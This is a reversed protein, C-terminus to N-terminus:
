AAASLKKKVDVNITRPKAEEKKPIDVELMGNNYAATIKDGLVNPPLTFSRLFKGYSREVRRYNKDTTEKEFKREGEITLVGNEVEVKIEKETMGPIEVKIVIADKTEVIDAAPAWQTPFLETDPANRPMLRDFRNRLTTLEDLPDFNEFRTLFTM